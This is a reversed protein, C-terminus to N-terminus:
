VEEQNNRVAERYMLIALQRTLQNEWLDAQYPSLASLSYNVDVYQAYLKSEDDGAFREVCQCSYSLYKYPVKQVSKAAKMLRALRAKKSM